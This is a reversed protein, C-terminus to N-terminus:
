EVKKTILKLAFLLDATSTGLGKSIYGFEPATVTVIWKEKKALNELTDSM